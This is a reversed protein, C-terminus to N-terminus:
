KTGQTPLGDRLEAAKQEALAQDGCEIIGGLYVDKHFCASFVDLSQGTFMEGGPSVQRAVVKDYKATAEALKGFLKAAAQPSDAKIIFAQYTTEGTKYNAKFLRELFDYGLASTAAYSLSDPLRDEALLLKDAWLPQGDDAITEAIAQAIQLAIKAANKDGETPGLVNVYYKGKWFFASAGSTYGQRGLRIHKVDPSREVMYIGMANEPEAMDYLYTDFIQQGRTDVYQGFRLEVFHFSRYQGERGNIKEYLNDTYREIKTPVTITADGPDAFRALGIAQPTASQPSTTAPPSAGGAPFAVAPAFNEGGYVLQRSALATALTDLDKTGPYASAGMLETYYRGGWFGIRMADASKWGARGLNVASSGAPKRAIFFDRAKEPTAMDAIRVMVCDGTERGADYRGWYVWRGGREAAAQALAQTDDVAPHASVAQTDWPDSIRPHGGEQQNQATLPIASCGRTSAGVVIARREYNGVKEPMLGEGIRIEVPPPAPKQNGSEVAFLPRSPVGLVSKVGAIFGQREAGQQLLDGTVIFSAVIAAVVVLIGVGIAGEPLRPRGRM